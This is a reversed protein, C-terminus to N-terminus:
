GVGCFPFWGDAIWEKVEWELHCRSTFGAWVILRQALGWGLVGRGLVAVPNNQLKNYGGYQEEVRGVRM